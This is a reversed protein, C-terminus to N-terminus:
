NDVRRVSDKQILETKSEILQLLNEISFPKKLFGSVNTKKAIQEIDSDASVIIIPIISSAINAQLVKVVGQMNLGKYHIDMLIIDPRTAIIHSHLDQEENPKIINHGAETLVLQMVDFIADDDEILFIRKKGIAM